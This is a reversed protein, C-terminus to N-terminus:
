IQKIKRVFMKENDQVFRSRLMFQDIERRLDYGRM